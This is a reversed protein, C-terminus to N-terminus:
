EYSTERKSEQQHLGNLRMEDRRPERPEDKQKEIEEITPLIFEDSKRDERVQHFDVDATGFSIGFSFTWTSVGPASLYGPSAQLSVNPFARVSSTAGIQASNKGLYGHVFEFGMQISNGAAITIGAGALVRTDEGITVLGLLVTPHVGNSDFTATVGGRRADTPFIPSGINQDASTVDVWLALRRVVPILAPIRFKGGFGYAIQSSFAGSQEGTLRVYAELTSSLGANLSVVNVGTGGHNFYTVRSGQVRFEMPPAITATPLVTLGSGNFLGQDTFMQAGATAHMLLIVSILRSARNM